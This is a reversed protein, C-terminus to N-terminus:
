GSCEIQLLIGTALQATTWTMDTTTVADGYTFETFTFCNGFVSSDQSGLNTMTVTGPTNRVVLAGISLVNATTSPSLGSITPLSTTLGGLHDGGNSAEGSESNYTWTTAGRYIQYITTYTNADSSWSCSVTGSVEGDAVATRVLVAVARRDSPDDMYAAVELTTWGSATCTLADGTWSGFRTNPMVVLLDGALVGSFGTDTSSFQEVTPAPTPPLPGGTTSAPYESKETFTGMLTTVKVTLKQGPGAAGGILFLTATDGEAVLGDTPNVTCPWLAGNVYLCSDQDLEVVGEGVNQVYVLLDDGTNAISQIMIAKGAKETTFGIYGMVWAYTILSGAIAVAIMMLVALVPSIAKMNRELSRM